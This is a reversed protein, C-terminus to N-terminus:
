NGRPLKARSWGYARRTQEDIDIIVDWRVSVSEGYIIDLYYMQMLLVEGNPPGLVKIIEERTKGVVLATFEESTFGTKNPKTKWDAFAGLAVASGLIVVTIVVYATSSLEGRKKGTM